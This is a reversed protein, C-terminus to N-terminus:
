RVPVIVRTKETGRIVTIDKTAPESPATMETGGMNPVVTPIPAPAPGMPERPVFIPERQVRPLVPTNASPASPTTRATTDPATYIRSPYERTEAVLGADGDVPNRITLHLTGQDNASVLRAAVDAPAALLIRTRSTAGAPPPPPPATPATAPAPAAGPVPTPTPAPAKISRDVALVLLNQAITRGATFQVAGNITQRPGKDYTLRHTAIVDIRDGSDVLGAATQDPDVWIAVGRLGSPIPINADIQRRLRPTFSSLLVTEGANIPERTLKGRVDDLSTIADTPASGSRFDQRLMASSIVTRPPINRAAVWRASPKPTPAAVQVPPGSPTSPRLLMFATAGLALVGLVITILLVPTNNRQM